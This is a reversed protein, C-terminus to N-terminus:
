EREGPGFPQALRSRAIHLGLLSNSHITEFSGELKGFASRANRKAQRRQKGLALRLLSQALWHRLAVRGAGIPPRM